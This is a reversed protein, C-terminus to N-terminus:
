ANYLVLSFRVEWSDAEVRSRLHFLLVPIILSDATENLIAVVTIM